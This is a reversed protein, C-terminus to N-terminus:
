RAGAKGRVWLHANPCSLKHHRYLRARGLEGPARAPQPAPNPTSTPKPEVVVPAQTQTM